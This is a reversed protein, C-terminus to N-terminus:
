AANRNTYAQVTRLPVTAPAPSPLGLARRGADTIWYHPTKGPQCRLMGLATLRDWYASYAISQVLFPVTRFENRIAPFGAEATAHGAVLVLMVFLRLPLMNTVHGADCAALWGELRRHMRRAYVPPVALAAHLEPTAHYLVRRTGNSEYRVLEIRVWPVPRRAYCSLRHIDRPREALTESPLGDSHALLALALRVGPAHLGLKQAARFFQMWFSATLDPKPMPQAPKLTM